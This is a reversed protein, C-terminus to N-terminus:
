SASGPLLWGRATPAGGLVARAAATVEPLTVARLRAPWHEVVELPLGIALTGGLMRPAAGIGDLTLLAGATLQRTARLREVESPGEQLLRAITAEVAAEVTEPTVGPRPTASVGFSTVGMAEGDYSANASTALGTEVLAQHLRSGQGSGLLHALVELAWAHSTDGWTLSPAMSARLFTAERVAPDHRILRDEVVAAPPPARDRPAAPRAPVPAYHDDVLRRLEAERVDGTVVLVANAPAYRARYFKLLDDRSIARIEDPWGILPRGRWHQAGWM